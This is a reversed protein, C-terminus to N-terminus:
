YSGFIDQRTRKKRKVSRGVVESPTLIVKTKRKRGNGSQKKYNKVFNSVGAKGEKVITEALNHGESLNGLIRSGTALTESGLNKGLKSLAPRLIRFVNKFINGLGAGRQRFYSGGRQYPSLGYFHSFGQGSQSFNDLKVSNVDFLCHVM